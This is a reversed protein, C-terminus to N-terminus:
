LFSFLSFSSFLLFSARLFDLISCAFCYGNNINTHNCVYFLGIFSCIKLFFVCVCVCVIFCMFFLFYIYIMLFITALLLLIVVVIYSYNYHLLSTFFGHFNGICILVSVHVLVLVIFSLFICTVLLRFFSILFCLVEFGFSTHPGLCCSLFFAFSMCILLFHSFM